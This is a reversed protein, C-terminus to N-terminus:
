EGRGIAFYLIPGVFNILLVVLIWIIRNGIKYNPHRLVHVLAIIALTYQLIIVPLLMILIDSTSM